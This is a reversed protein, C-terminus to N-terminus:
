KFRKVSFTLLCPPLYVRDNYANRPDVNFNRLHSCTLKKYELQWNSHELLLSGSKVDVIHTIPDSTLNSLGFGYVPAPSKCIVPSLHNGIHSWEVISTGTNYFVIDGANLPNVPHQATIKIFDYLPNKAETTLLSKYDGEVGKIPPIKPFYWQYYDKQTTPTVSAMNVDSPYHPTVIIANNDTNKGDVVTFKEIKGPSVFSNADSSYIISLAKRKIVTKTADTYMPLTKCVEDFGCINRIIHGMAIYRVSLPVNVAMEAFKGGNVGVRTATINFSPLAQRITGNWPTSRGFLTNTPFWGWFSVNLGIYRRAKDANSFEAATFLSNIAILFNTSSLQYTQTLTNVKYGLREIVDLLNARLVPAAKMNDDVAGTYKNIAEYDYGKHLFHSLVNNTLLSKFYNHFIYGTQFDTGSYPKAFYKYMDAWIREGDPKWPTTKGDAFVPYYRPMGLCIEIDYLHYCYEYAATKSNAVTPFHFCDKEHIFQIKTLAIYWSEHLPIKYDEEYLNNDDDLIFKCDYGSSGLTQPLSPDITAKISFSSTNQLFSM